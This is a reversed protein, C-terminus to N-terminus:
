ELEIIIDDEAVTDGAKFNVKKVQFTGFDICSIIKRFTHVLVKGTKGATLSNQMKMAELVCVEQGESIMEGVKAIVKKVMGPMPAIVTSLKDLVKKEPMYKVYEAVREEMVKTKFISGSYQLKIQGVADRAMLQYTMDSGNVNATIINQSLNFNNEVRITEGNIKVIFVNEELSIQATEQKGEM